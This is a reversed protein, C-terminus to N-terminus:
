TAFGRRNLFVLTQGGAALNAELAAACARAVAAGDGGRPREARACTSWSSSRCRSRRRGRPSRSCRTAATARRMTARPAVAHGVGARRRGGGLRARVVALDRANYRIGEEQKYAADHEEDVVVLGLRALPAFVASRAGVVVRAERSASAGGSTGASARGSGATCCRSATASAPACARWWSIRSPSRRARAGPRRPGAALTAEAAALFVETKGSGTVGHLLFSATGAAACRPRSPTPPPASSPPSRSVRAEPPSQRRRRDAARTEARRPSGPACWRACADAASSAPPARTACRCRATRRTRSCGTPARAPRRGARSRPRRTRRRPRRVLSWSASRRRSRCVRAARDHRDGRRAVGPLLAGDMPVARPPRAAPAARSRRLRAGRAPRGAPPREPSGPSWASARRGGSRCACACAPGIATGCRRRARSLHLLDYRPVPPLPAIEVLGDM